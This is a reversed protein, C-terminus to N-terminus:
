HHRLGPAHARRDHPPSVVTTALRSLAGRRRVGRQDVTGAHRRHQIGTPHLPVRRGHCAVIHRTDTLGSIKVQLREVSSDVYRVTGGAGPEEGLVNWPEIASRLELTIGAHTVRGYLPFRFEFHPAFWEPQFAYGAQRLEDLVDQFDEAVFHPLLFRDHLTTGWRVLRQTYSTNWFRAILARLLLQQTLSM